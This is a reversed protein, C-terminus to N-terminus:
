AATVINIKIDHKKEWTYKSFNRPFVKIKFVIDKISHGM